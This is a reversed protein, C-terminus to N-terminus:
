AVATWQEWRELNAVVQGADSDEPSDDNRRPGHWLHFVPGSVRRLPWLKACAAAFALDEFGWGHYLEDFGGVERFSERSIAVAGMSASGFIPPEGAVNMPHFGALVRDSAAEDLRLYLDYAFVLGPERGARWAAEEVQGPDCLTDADAFVIVSRRSGKAGANRAAGPSWSAEDLPSLAVDFGAARYNAVVARMNEQRQESSRLRWPIIVQFSM